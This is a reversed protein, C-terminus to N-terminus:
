GPIQGFVAGVEREEEEAGAEPEEEEAGAEPEEEEAGAEPEEEEAEAEPEEEAAEAVPEEEKAVALVAEEEAKATPEEDDEEAVATDNPEEKEVESVVQGEVETAGEVKSVDPESPLWEEVDSTGTDSEDDDSEILEEGVDRYLEQSNAILNAVWALGFM